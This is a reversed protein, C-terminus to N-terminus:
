RPEHQRSLRAADVSRRRRVADLVLRTADAVTRAHDPDTVIDGHTAGEVTVHRSNTSLLAMEEHIRDGGISNRTASLVVLPRDGFDRSRRVQPFTFQPLARVERASSRVHTIQALFARVEAFARARLGRAERLLPRALAHMVGLRALTPSVTAAISQALQMRRGDPLRFFADPHQPEVLVVGAVEDPYQSAYVIVHLAGQSVGLLIYPGPVRANRLAAHLGRAITLADSIEGRPLPDSWGLGPRDYAVVRAEEAIRSRVWDLHPSPMSTGCELVVTPGGREDGDEVLHLRYGGADVLRGPAPYRRRDRATAYTEWGVGIIALALIAGCSVLLM